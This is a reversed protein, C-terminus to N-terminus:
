EELDIEPFVANLAFWILTNKYRENERRLTKIESNLIKILNDNSEIKNLKEQCEVLKQNRQNILNNAGDLQSKQSQIKGILQSNEKELIDIRLQLQEMAKKASEFTIEDMFINKRWIKRLLELHM